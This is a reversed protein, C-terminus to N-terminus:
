DNKEKLLKIKEDTRKGAMGGSKVTYTVLKETNHIFSYGEKDLRLWMDWDEISDLRIDFRHQTAPHLRMVVSSIYIFPTNLMVERGPYKDPNPIGWPIAIQGNDFVHRVSSYVIDNTGIYSLQKMLYDNDWIDDSDCFAVHTFSSDLSDLGLNRAAAPGQNTQEIIQIKPHNALINIAKKESGDDIIFLKWNLFTQSMIAAVSNVLKDDNYYPMIIAVRDVDLLGRESLYQQNDQVFKPFSEDIQWKETYRKKYDKGFNDRGDVINMEINFDDKYQEQNLEQHAWAELKSIIGKGGGMWSFHWGGNPIRQSNVLKQYRVGTLTLEKKRIYGLTTIRSFTSQDIRSIGVNYNLFYSFQNQEFFQIDGKFSSITSGRPIEDLDSVIVTTDNPLESLAKIMYDRQYHERLWPDQVSPPNDAVLHIIKHEWKKFREKNDQFYLPKPKGSHTVPMESIVFYDVYSDLENLRIELLDLENFFSFCDYVLKEKKKKPRIFQIDRGFLDKGKSICDLIYDENKYKETNFEEHGYAELKERIQSPSGNFSYHWGGDPIITNYTYDGEGRFYQPSKEKLTSFPLIRAKYWKQNAKTQWDYYFLDMEIACVGMEHKYSQIVEKKVIEDADSIIIIDHPLCDELGRMIADRQYNERGWTTLNEPFDIVVHEIKHAFPAFHSDNKNFNIPKPKGQHTKTAEIIVFKDVVSDLEYLRKELVGKENFFICCDIVKPKGLHRNYLHHVHKQLREPSNGYIPQFTGGGVHNIPFNETRLNDAIGDRYVIDNPTEVLKYGANEARICFDVDEHYGEGFQEDLYGIRQFVERKIMVCWFLLYNRKIDDRWAKKPGVIGVNDVFRTLLLKIWEDKEQSVLETDNNLLVIFEGMSQKIGENTARIYGVRDNIWLLKFPHGLSHVYGKTDETCGNAVIIIELEELNTYAKISEVCKKLYELNNYSPIIVSIRPKTPYKQLLSTKKPFYQLPPTETFTQKDKHILPFERWLQNPNASLYEKTICLDDKIDTPVQIIKYGAKKARICYDIDEEYGMGFDEDLLGIKDIVSRRTMACYFVLYEERFRLVDNDWYFRWDKYPGTIGVSPDLFPKKLIDLWNRGIVETDNNLFVIYDGTAARIGENTAKIFGVQKDIWILRFPEGLSEVYERTGDTCGNAVVIVETNSLDTTNIISRLCPKLCDELHNFTPIIISTKEGISKSYETAPISFSELPYEKTLNPTYQFLCIGKQSEKPGEYSKIFTLQPDKKLDECLRTVDNIYLHDHYFIFAGDAAYKKALQTDKYAGEYSHDADIFILNYKKGALFNDAEISTSDGRFINIKGSCRTNILNTRYNFPWNMDAWGLDLTTVNKVDLVDCIIRTVGGDAPGIELYEDVKIDKLDYLLGSIEHPDQQMCYGGEWLGGFIEVNKSGASLVYQKITDFSSIDIVTDSKKINALEDRGVFVNHIYGLKTLTFSTRNDLTATLLGDDALHPTIRDIWPAIDERKLTDFLNGIDIRKAKQSYRELLIKENRPVVKSWDEVDKVTVSGKHWIPFQLTHQDTPRVDTLRIDNPVQVIKYGLRKLKNCYDIDEGYGPNFIPDIGGVRNLIDRKTMACFFLLFESQTEKHYNKAAGTIGVAEDLLFPAVLMDLWNSGLIQTDNNLLVIYDGKSISIGINIAKTYGCARNIDIVSFHNGLTNRLDAIYKVTGDDECGNAVVILEVDQFDTHQLISEVCPKLCDEFHKFTPIVISYKM